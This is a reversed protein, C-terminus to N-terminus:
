SLAELQWRFAHESHQPFQDAFIILLMKSQNQLRVGLVMAFRSYWWVHVGIAVYKRGQRDEFVWTGAVSEISVWSQRHAYYAAMSLLLLFFLALIWYGLVWYVGCELVSFFWGLIIIKRYLSSPILHWYHGYM